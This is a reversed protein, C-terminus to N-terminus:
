ARPTVLPDSNPVETMILSANRFYSVLDEAYKTMSEVEVIQALERGSNTLAVGYLKFSGFKTRGTDAALVWYKEQFRFPVQVLVPPNPIVHGISLQIDYWTNYDQGILGHESLINLNHFDFGYAKLGNGQQYNGLMAVRADYATRDSPASFICVSCLKGFLAATDKDLAKLIELTKISTRGPREVEGMLIKAWLKQMEESSVDQVDNFFRATWDLDVEHDQVEGDGLEQAAQVVVARINAQRKEEQFQVRQEIFDGITVEGQLAAQPSILKSRAETQAAAIIQMTHAQGEALIRQTEVNGRAEIQKAAAERRAKWPALMSGAVGGIGSAAYDLLKEIAPVRLNIDM